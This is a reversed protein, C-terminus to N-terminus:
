VLLSRRICVILIITLNKFITYVPISLFQLSKSGTYIVSVLLFSIPFWAKADELDFPRFRIVGVKKAILVCAVCVVSQMALLLFNMSFDAGSVVFKNVVTM